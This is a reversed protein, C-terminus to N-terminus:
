ASLEPVGREFSEPTVIVAEAAHPHTEHFEDLARRHREAEGQWSAQVPVV